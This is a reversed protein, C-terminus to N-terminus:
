VNNKRRGKTNSFQVQLPTTLAAEPSWGANLRRYILHPDVGIERAWAVVHMTRGNFTVHRTNRLRHHRSREIVEEDSWGYKRCRSNLRSAPVGLEKAWQPLTMTKGRATIWVTRRTNAMQEIKTAWRCNEPCYDGDNDIREISTGTPRPGMDDIFAQLSDWRECVKIGRGGYDKYQRAKPNGCRFHMQNWVHNIKTRESSPM